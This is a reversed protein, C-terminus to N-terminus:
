MAQLNRSLAAILVSDVEGHISDGTVWTSSVFCIILISGIKTEVNIGVVM